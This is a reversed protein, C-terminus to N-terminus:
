ESTEGYRARDEILRLFFGSYPNQLRYNIIKNRLFKHLFGVDQRVLTSLRSGIQLHSVDEGTEQQLQNHVDEITFGGDQATRVRAIAFIFGRNPGAMSDIILQKHSREVLPVVYELAREAAVSVDKDMVELREDDLAKNAAHLCLLRAFYPIAQSLSAIRASAEGSFSLGTRRCGIDILETFETDSLLRMSIGCVNRRISEHYGMIDDLSDAVGVIVLTARIGADSFSKITEIVSHGLTAKDARDFEDLVFIARTNSLRSMANTLNQATFHGEPLLSDFTQTAGERAGRDNMFKQDYLMPIQALFGRFMSSYDIGDNCSARCVIFDAEAAIEVLTNAFSTKGWGRKGHIVIHMRENEIASIARRMEEGRGALSARGMVPSSPSFVDRVKTRIAEFRSNGSQDFPRDSALSRFRINEIERGEIKESTDARQGPLGRTTLHGARYRAGTGMSRGTRHPAHPTVPKAGASTQGPRSPPEASKTEPASAGPASIRAGGAGSGMPYAPNPSAQEAPARDATRDQYRRASSVTGTQAARGPSGTKMTMDAARAPVSTAEGAAPAVTQQQDRASPAEGAAGVKPMPQRTPPVLAGPGEQDSPLEGRVEGDPKAQDKGDPGSRRRRRRMSMFSM